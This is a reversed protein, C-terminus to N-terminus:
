VPPTMVIITQRPMFSLGQSPEALPMTSRYKGGGPPFACVHPGPGNEIASVPYHCLLKFDSAVLVDLKLLDISLNEYAFIYIVRNPKLKCYSRSTFHVTLCRCSSIADARLACSAVYLPGSPTGRSPRVATTLSM